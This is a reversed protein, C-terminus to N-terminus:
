LGCGGDVCADFGEVGAVFGNKGLGGGHTGPPCETSGFTGGGTVSNGGFKELWGDACGFGASLMGIILMSGRSRAVNRCVYGFWNKVVVVCTPPGNPPWFGTAVSYKLGFMTCVVVVHGRGIYEVPGPMVRREVSAVISSRVVGVPSTILVGDGYL